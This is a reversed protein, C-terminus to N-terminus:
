TAICGAKRRFIGVNPISCIGFRFRISAKQIKQEYREAQFYGFTELSYNYIHDISAEFEESVKVPKGSVRKEM